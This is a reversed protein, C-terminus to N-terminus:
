SIKKPAANHQGAPNWGRRARGDRNQGGGEVPQHAVSSLEIVAACCDVSRDTGSESLHDSLDIRKTVRAALAGTQHPSM